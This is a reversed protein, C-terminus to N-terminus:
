RGVVGMGLLTEIAEDLTTMLRASAAYSKQYQLLNIGEEDLSVGSIADKSNSIEGAVSTYNDLNSTTSKIDLGLTTGLNS